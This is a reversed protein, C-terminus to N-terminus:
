MKWSLTNEEWLTKQGSQEPYVALGTRGPLLSAEQERWREKGKAESLAAKLRSIITVQIHM